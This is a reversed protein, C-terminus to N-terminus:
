STDLSHPFSQNREDATADPANPMKVIRVYESRARAFVGRSSQMTMVVILAFMVRSVTCIKFVTYIKPM